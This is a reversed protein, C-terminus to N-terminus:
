ATLGFQGPLVLRCMCRGVLNEVNTRVDEPAFAAEAATRLSHGANHELWARRMAPDVGLIQLTTM